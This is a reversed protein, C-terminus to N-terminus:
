PQFPVRCFMQDLRVSLIPCIPYSSQPDEQTRLIGLIISSTRSNQSNRLTTIEM